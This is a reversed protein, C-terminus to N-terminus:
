NEERGLDLAVLPGRKVDRLFGSAATEWESRSVSVINVERGFCPTLERAVRSLEMQRPRGVVITNVPARYRRPTRDGTAVVTCLQM